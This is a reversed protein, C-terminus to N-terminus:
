FGYKIGVSFQNNNLGGKLPALEVKEEDSLYYHVHNYEVRLALNGSLSTEIGGGLRLGDRSTSFEDGDFKTTARGRQYGVRGYVATKDNLNYGLRASAGFQHDAEFGLNADGVSATALDFNAEVGVFTNDSTQVDYGAYVTAGIGNIGSGVDGELDGGLALNDHTVGAGVYFGANAALAPSAVAIAAVAAAIACKRM